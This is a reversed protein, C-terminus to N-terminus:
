YYILRAAVQDHSSIDVIGGTAFGLNDIGVLAMGGVILSCAKSQGCQPAYVVCYQNM